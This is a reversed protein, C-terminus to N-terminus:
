TRMVYAIEGVRRGANDPTSYKFDKTHLERTAENFYVLRGDANCMVIADDSNRFMAKFLELPDSDDTVM